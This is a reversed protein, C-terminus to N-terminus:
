LMGGTKLHVEDLVKDIKAEKMLDSTENTFEIENAPTKLLVYFHEAVRYAALSLAVPIVLYPIWMPIELDVSTEDMDIVLLIYEYGYYAVITLYVFTVIRSMLMMGKAVKRDVFEVLLDISIHGDLKFTYAVAFFMSWLFFYMTLESAWTISYDFIYRGVVNAFALSIGATIGFAAIGRNIVGITADLINFIKKMISDKYLFYAWIM